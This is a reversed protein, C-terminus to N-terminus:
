PGALDPPSPHLEDRLGRGILREVGDWRRKVVHYLACLPDSVVLLRSEWEGSLTAQCQPTHLAM